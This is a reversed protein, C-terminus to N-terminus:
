APSATDAPDRSYFGLILSLILGTGIAYVCHCVLYTSQVRSEAAQRATYADKGNVNPAQVTYSVDGPRYTGPFNRQLNVVNRLYWEGTGTAVFNQQAPIAFFLVSTSVALAIWFPRNGTKPFLSKSASVCIAILVLFQTTAAWVSSGSTLAILAVSFFATVVFCM